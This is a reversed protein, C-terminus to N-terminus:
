TSRRRKLSRAAFLGAFGGGVIVVKPRGDAPRTTGSPATPWCPTRRPRDGAARRTPHVPIDGTLIPDVVRWAAEVTEQQAFLWRKGELAAGILRDYPRM